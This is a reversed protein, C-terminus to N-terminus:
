RRAVKAVARLLESRRALRMKAALPRLVAVPQTARPAVTPVPQQQSPRTLLM